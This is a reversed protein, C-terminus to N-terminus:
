GAFFASCHPTWSRTLRFGRPTQRGRVFSRGGIIPARWCTENAFVNDFVAACKQVRQVAPRHASPHTHLTCPPTPRRPASLVSLTFSTRSCIVFASSSFTLVQPSFHLDSAMNRMQPKENRQTTYEDKLLILRHATHWALLWFWLSSRVGVPFVEGLPRLHEDSTWGRSKHSISIIIVRVSPMDNQAM